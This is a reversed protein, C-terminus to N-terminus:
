KLREQEYKKKEALERAAFYEQNAQKANKDVVIHSSRIMCWVVVLIYISIILITNWNTIRIYPSKIYLLSLLAQGIVFWLLGVLYAEAYIHGFGPIFSLWRATTPSKRGAM